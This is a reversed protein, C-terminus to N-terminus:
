FVPFLRMRRVLQLGKELSEDANCARSSKRRGFRKEAHFATICKQFYNQKWPAHRFRMVFESATDSRAVGVYTRVYLATIKPTFARLGVSRKEMARKEVKRTAAIKSAHRSLVRSDRAGTM